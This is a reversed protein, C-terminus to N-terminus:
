QMQEIFSNNLTGTRRVRSDVTVNVPLDVFYTDWENKIQKWLKPAARRIVQGFGFIDVKYEHQVSNIAEDILTKVQAGSKQRIQEFTQPNTLDIHCAVEAVNIEMRVKIDIAPRGNNVSGKVISHTRVVEFALKGGDDCQIEGVTSKVRNTIYNYAKSEAENLWGVLRDDDFVALNSFQVQELPDIREVNGNTSGDAPGVVQAGTLVAQEGPSILNGILEDLMIKRTPAWVKESAELSDYINIASIKELATMVTLLNYARSKRAVIIYFDNRLEHDRSIFDLVNAIGERALEESIILIRIHSMYIKRPSEKTMKRMAEFITSGTSQFLTVPSAGRAKKATAEGPDVVQISLQLQDEAKDIAVGVAIGLSNLERRDWCGTNFLLAIIILLLKGRHQVM